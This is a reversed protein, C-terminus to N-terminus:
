SFLFLLIKSLNSQFFFVVFSIFHLSMLTKIMGHQKLQEVQQQTVSNSQDVGMGFCHMSSERFTQSSMASEIDTISQEDCQHAACLIDNDNGEDM